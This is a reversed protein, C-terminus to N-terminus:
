RRVCSTGGIGFSAGSDYWLFELWGPFNRGELPVKHLRQVRNVGSSKRGWPLWGGPTKRGLLDRSHPKNHLTVSDRSCLPAAFRESPFNEGLRLSSYCKEPGTVVESSVRGIVANSSPLGEEPASSPKCNVAPSVTVKHFEKVGPCREDM